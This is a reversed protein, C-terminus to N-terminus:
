VLAKGGLGMIYRFVNYSYALVYISVRNSSLNEGGNGSNDVFLQDDLQLKIKTSDIRALNAFGVAQLPDPGLPSLSFSFCYVFKRGSAPAARPTSSDPQGTAGVSEFIAQSRLGLPTPARSAGAANTTGAAHRAPATEGVTDYWLMELTM